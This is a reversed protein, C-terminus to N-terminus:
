PRPTDDVIPYRLHRVDGAREYEVDLEPAADLTKMLALMHEPREIPQGNVHVLVDGPRLDVGRWFSPDGTLRAIRFGYFRGNRTAPRSELEIRQLFAAPGLALVERLAARSLRPPPLPTPPLTSGSASPLPSAAGSHLPAAPPEAAPSGGCAALVLAVFAATRV